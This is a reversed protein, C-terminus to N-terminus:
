AFKRKNASGIELLEAVDVSAASSLQQQQRQQKAAEKKPKPKKDSAKAAM